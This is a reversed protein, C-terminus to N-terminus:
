KSALLVSATSPSIPPDIIALDAGISGITSAFKFGHAAMPGLLILRRMVSPRGIVFHGDATNAYMCVQSRVPMPDLGPLSSRVLAAVPELDQTHTERDLIDPDAIPGEHHIARSRPETLLPSDM